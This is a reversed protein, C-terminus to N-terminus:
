FIHNVCIISNKGPHFIYSMPSNDVIISQSIDKNLVSLDKVYHGLMYPFVYFSNHSTYTIINWSIMRVTMFFAIKESCGRVLLRFYFCMNESVIGIWRCRYAINVKKPDLIDLLPDAYKSM